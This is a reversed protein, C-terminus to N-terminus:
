DEGEAGETSAPQTTRKLARVEAMSLIPGEFLKNEPEFDGSPPPGNYLINAQRVAQFFSQNLLELTDDFNKDLKVKVTEKEAKMESNEAHLVLIKNYTGEVVKKMQANEAM